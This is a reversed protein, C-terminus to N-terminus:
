LMVFGIGDKGREEGVGVTDFLRELLDLRRSAPSFAGM